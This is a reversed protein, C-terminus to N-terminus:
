AARRLPAARRRTLAVWGLTRTRRAAHDRIADRAVAPLAAMATQVVVDLMFDAVEAVNAARDLRTTIRAVQCAITVPEAPLAPSPLARAEALLIRARRIFRARDEATVANRAAIRAQRAATLLAFAHSTPISLPM